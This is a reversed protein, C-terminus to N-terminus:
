GDIEKVMKQINAPIEMTESGPLWPGMRDIGAKTAEQFIGLVGVFQRLAIFIARYQENLSYSGPNRDFTFWYIRNRIMINRIFSGLGKKTMEIEVVTGLNRLEQEKYEEARKHSSFALLTRLPGVESASPQALNQNPEGVGGIVEGGGTPDDFTCYAREEPVSIVFFRGKDFLRSIFKIRDSKM